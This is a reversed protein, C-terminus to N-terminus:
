YFIMLCDETSMQDISMKGFSIQDFQELGLFMNKFNGVKLYYSLKIIQVNLKYRTIFSKVGNKM